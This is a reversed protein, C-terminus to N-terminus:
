NENKLFLKQVKQTNGISPVIVRVPLFLKQM